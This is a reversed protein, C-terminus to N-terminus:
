GAHRRMQHWNRLDIAANVAFIAGLALDLLCLIQVWDPQRMPWNNCPVIIVRSGSVVAQSSQGKTDGALYRACPDRQGIYWLRIGTALVLGLLLSFITLRSIMFAAAKRFV